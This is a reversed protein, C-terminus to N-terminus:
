LLTAVHTMGCVVVGRRGRRWGVAFRRQCMVFPVGDRRWFSTMCCWDTEMVLREDNWAGLTLIYFLISLPLYPLNPIRAAAAAHSPPSPPSIACAVSLAAAQRTPPLPLFAYHLAAHIHTGHLCPLLHCPLSTLHFPTTTTTTLCSVPLCGAVPWACLSLSLPFPPYSPAAPCFFPLATPHTCPLCAPLYTPLCHPLPLPMAAHRKVAVGRRGCAVGHWWAQGQGEEWGLTGWGFGAVALVPVPMSLLLCTQWAM